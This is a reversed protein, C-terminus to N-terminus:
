RVQSPLGLDVNCLKKIANYRDDRQSPVILVVIQCDILKKIEDCYSRPRDNAIKITLPKQINIGTKRTLERSIEYFRTASRQDSVTYIM